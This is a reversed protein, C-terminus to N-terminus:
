RDPAERDVIEAILKQLITLLQAREAETLRDFLAAVDDNHRAIANQAVAKGTKTLEIYTARRDREHAVRQVLGEAELGDVLVTITRPTVGMLEGLEGMVIREGKGALLGLLTARSVTLAGDSPLLSRVFRVYHSGFVSM